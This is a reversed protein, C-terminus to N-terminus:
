RKQQQSDKKADKKLNKWKDKCHQLTIGSSPYKNILATHVTTWATDQATRANKKKSDPFLEAENQQMLEVLYNSIEATFRM